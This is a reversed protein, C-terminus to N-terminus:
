PPSWYNEKKNQVVLRSGSDMKNTRDKPMHSSPFLRFLLHPAEIALSILSRPFRSKTLLRFKFGYFNRASLCGSMMGQGMVKGNCWISGDEDAGGSM